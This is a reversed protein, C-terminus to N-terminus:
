MLIKYKFLHSNVHRLDLVLCRKGDFYVDFYVLRCQTALLDNVAHFRETDLASKNNRLVYSEPIIHLPLKYGERIVSLVM